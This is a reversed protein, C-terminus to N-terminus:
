KRRASSKYRGIPCASGCPRCRWVRVAWGGVHTGSDCAAQRVAVHVVDPERSAWLQAGYLAATHKLILLDPNIRTGETDRSGTTISSSLTGRPVDRCVLIMGVADLLLYDASLCPRSDCALWAQHNRPATRISIFIRGSRLSRLRPQHTGTILIAAQEKACPRFVNRTRM